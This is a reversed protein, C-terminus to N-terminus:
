LEKLLNYIEDKNLRESDLSNGTKLNTVIKEEDYFLREHLREGKRLGIVNVQTGSNALSEIAVQVLDELKITKQEPIYINGNEGNEIIDLIFDSLREVKIFFRTMELDTVTIKNAQKIQEKWKEIVSGSSGFVNGSRVIMFRKENEECAKQLVIKEMLLKTAGYCGLPEVAKDTSMAIFTNGQFHEILNITGAVNISIAEFPNMECLDIHKMAALHIVTDVDRLAYPLIRSDRIDGVISEIRGLGCKAATKVINSENRSITKIKVYEFKDLLDKIVYRGLFGCGGTILINNM